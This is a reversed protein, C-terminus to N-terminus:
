LAIYRIDGPERLRHLSSRCHNVEGAEDAIRSTGHIELECSMGIDNCSAHGLFDSIGHAYVTENESGAARDIADALPLRAFGVRQIRNREICLGLNVALLLQQGTDAVIEEDSHQAKRGDKAM